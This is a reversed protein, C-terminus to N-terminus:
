RLDSTTKVTGDKDIFFEGGYPDKPLRKLVGQSLLDNLSVPIRGSNMKYATVAKELIFVRQLAKLRKELSEREIKDKTGEITQQLFMIAIETRSAKYALRTALSALIPAAGPKKSSQMLYESAKANDHLFYFENFGMYFSPLWDWDRFRNGKALLINTEKVMQADWTFFSNAFYYPDFFYPDLDSSVNLVDYMWRWEADTVKPSATREITGGYYSQIKLMLYDAALGDFDLTSIKAIPGPLVYFVGASQQTSKLSGLTTLSFLYLPTFFVAILLSYYKRM